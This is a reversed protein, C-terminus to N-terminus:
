MDFVIVILGWIEYIETNRKDNIVSKCFWIEYLVNLLFTVM